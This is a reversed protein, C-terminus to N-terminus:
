KKAKPAKDKKVLLHRIFQDELKLKPEITRAGEPTLELQYIMFFGTLNKKIAFTLEKDGWEEVGLVKGKNIKVLKEIIEHAAKKKASTVGGPLVVVLEYENM